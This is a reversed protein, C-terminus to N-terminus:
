EFHDIKIRSRFKGVELMNYFIYLKIVSQSKIVHYMISTDVYSMIVSCVVLISIKLMDCIEAPKFWVRPKYSAEICFKDSCQIIIALLQPCIQLLRVRILLFISEIIFHKCCHPIQVTFIHICVFIFRCVSFLYSFQQYTVSTPLKYTVINIFLYYVQFFGYIMFKEVEWPIKM